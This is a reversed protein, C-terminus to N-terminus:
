AAGMLRAIIWVAGFIAMIFLELGTENLRGTKLRELVFVIVMASTAGVAIEFASM